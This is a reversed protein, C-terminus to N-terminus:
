ITVNVGDEIFIQADDGMTYVDYSKGDITTTQGSNSAGALTVSDDDGGHIVLNNDVDSLGELTSVDLTLESDKAFSLDIAGIDFDGLGGTDVVDTGTEEMVVYTANSNSSGDTENVVLHTGDSLAPDFNFLTEGWPLTAGDDQDALQNVSGSATVESVTVDNDTTDIGLYEVGDATLTVSEVGPADPAVTDVEFTDTIESYNGNADTAGITISATYEGAPFEDADYTVSWNGSSDVTAERTISGSGYNYVVSVTSGAEVTGNLTVGDAAEANNVVNDGEVPDTTTLENVWTDVEVTSTIVSVNGAPDTATATMNATGEYNAQVSSSSFNASWAGSAGSIVTVTEGGFEVVVSSGPETTGSLTVGNAAEAANIINDGEIPAASWEHPQVITDIEVTDSVEKYNGAADTISATIPASATDAPVQSAPFNASWTGDAQALVDMTADGFGVTVTLGPTATGNIVVGDSAEDFNVVDDLEIPQTSLALDGAVTDVNVAESISSSNGAADTATVTVSTEYEGGELTGGPYTVSWNGDADVAAAMVVGHLNVSVTSGPEVTGTMTIAEGSENFNVVSDSGGSSNSTMELENVYTDVVVTGSSSATNGAADTAVVTVDHTTEGTGVQAATYDASWTGDSTATVTQSYGGMTVVVSAGPQATGTLTVGGPQESGNVVNDSGGVASTDLTVSTVTDVVVTASSSSSNGAADTATITIEQTYEGEGMVDSGVDLTWTGDTVTANYDVGDITVVVTEGGTVTGTLTVGGDYEAANIVGDAGGTAEVDVGIVTDVILTDTVTTSGGDNTITVEVPTEYEGTAVDEPDFTVTWEGDESVTTTETVGDIVVEVTAGPTGSGSIDVGDAHDEENVVHEAAETGATVSVVPAAVGDDDGGGSVLVAAGAAAAAAAGGWGFLPAMAGLMGVGDDQPVYSDALMVEADRMFYLDDNTAFKGIAADGGTYTAYYDSGAGANLEVETLFGNASLFLENESVGDMTFFGEIVITRGDVLTIELAQGQRTYSLIQGQSLNLSVDAGAGVILSSPVGEGAVSGRSINGAVDRVVFNIASM